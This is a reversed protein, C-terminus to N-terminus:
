LTQTRTRGVTTASTTADTILRHRVVPVTKVISVTTVLSEPPVARAGRLADAGLVRLGDTASVLARSGRPVAPRTASPRM